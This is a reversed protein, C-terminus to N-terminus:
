VRGNGITTTTRPRPGPINKTKSFTKRVRNASAVGGVSNVHLILFRCVRDTRPPGHRRLPGNVADNHKSIVTTAFVTTFSPRVSLILFLVTHFPFPFIARTDDYYVSHLPKTIDKKKKKRSTFETGTSENNSKRNKKAPPRKKKDKRIVFM